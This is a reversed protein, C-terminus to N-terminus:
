ASVVVDEDNAATVGSEASREGRAPQASRHQDDFRGRFGEAAAVAPVRAVEAAHVVTGGVHEGFRIRLFLVPLVEQLDGAPLGVFLEGAMRDASGGGTRRPHHCVADAELRGEAARQMKRARVREEEAAALREDVRVVAGGGRDADLDGVVGLHAVEVDAVAPEM